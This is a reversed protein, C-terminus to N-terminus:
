TDSKEKPELNVRCEYVKFPLREHGKKLEEYPDMIVDFIWNHGIFLNDNNNLFTEHNDIHMIHETRHKLYTKQLHNINKLPKKRLAEMMDFAKTLDGLHYYYLALDYALELGHANLALQHVHYAKLQTHIEPDFTNIDQMVGELYIHVLMIDFLHKTLKKSNIISKAKDLLFRQTDDSYRSSFQTYQNVQIIQFVDDEFMKRHAVFDGYFQDNNLTSSWIYIASFGLVFFNFVFSYGVLAVQNSFIFILVTILLSIFAFVLTAIPAAILSFSFAAISKKYEQDNKIEPLDPVVMGGFLVWLKPRIKFHWRQDKKFFVFMTLFLALIHIGKVKFAILHTLEHITLTVYFALILLLPYLYFPVARLGSTMTYWIGQYILFSVVFGILFALIILRAIKLLKM